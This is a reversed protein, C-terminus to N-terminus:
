SNLHQCKKRELKKRTISVKLCFQSWVSCRANYDANGIFVAQFCKGMKNFIKYIKFQKEM